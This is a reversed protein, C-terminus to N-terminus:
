GFINDIEEMDLKHLIKKGFPSIECNSSSFLQGVIGLMEEDKLQKGEKISLRKSMSLAIKLTKSIPTNLESDSLEYLIDELIIQADESNIDNPTAMINFSGDKQYEIVFGYKRIEPLLGLLETTQTPSFFHNYPFLLQQCSIDEFDMASFKDFLIRQSAREQNIVIISNKTKTLIYKNLAQIVEPIPNSYNSQFSEEVSFVNVGKNEFLNEKTKYEINKISEKEFPNYDPNINIRPMTPNEGKKIPTFEFSKDLTFDLQNALTFQGLSKKTAAYMVAYIVKDDLFKIETKTPHINVDINEPKVKLHIFFAPYTKEQTLGQYARDVSNALYPNRMFRNNVFFYQESKNKKVHEAKIIFGSIKVAEIEEEIPLLRENYSKGFIDIIRKKLNQKELKHILKGNNYYTFAIDNNILATRIFEELIHNNEVIDSKLFNRRAPVNFFLNKVSISTGKECAIPSNNKCINGEMEILTGLEQNEQRTKMEVHSIAAISALAEGRFGMTTLRFLDDSTKIKSTAHREFSILADEKNMGFGNDIVQILTKGADKIILQIHTAKADIANEILEKVVSAPRQVVEGAAIQNSINPPLISIINSM